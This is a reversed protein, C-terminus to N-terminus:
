ADGTHRKARSVSASVPATRAGLAKWTATWELSPNPM